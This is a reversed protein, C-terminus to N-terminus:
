GRCRWRFGSAGSDSFSVPEAAIRKAIEEFLITRAKARRVAEPDLHEVGAEPVIEYRGYRATGAANIFHPHGDRRFLSGAAFSAPAPKPTQVFAQAAPHSGLFQEIPTAGAIARLFELFEEGTRTPFGDVSHGIIDTHVREALHFRIAIGRPDSKPDNDPLLPVGTSNSFRVTVPTSERNAHPARTLERAGPAPTFTGSLLIGKAHAPRIGPYSGFLAQLQQILSESLGLLKEDTPLPM